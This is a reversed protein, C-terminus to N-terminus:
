LQLRRLMSVGDGHPRAAAFSAPCPVGGVDDLAAAEGAGLAVGRRGTPIAGPYGTMLVIPLDPRAASLVAALESGTKGPMVEDLLALDFRDPDSRFAALAAESAAYGVPEYGIAALMEEGSRCWTRRTM